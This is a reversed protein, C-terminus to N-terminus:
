IKCVNESLNTKMFKVEGVRECRPFLGLSSRRGMGEDGQHARTSSSSFDSPRFSKEALSARFSPFTKKEVKLKHYGFPALILFVGCSAAGCMVRALAAKINGQRIM